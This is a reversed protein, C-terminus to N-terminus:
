LLYYKNFVGRNEYVINKVEGAPRFHPENGGSSIARHRPKVRGQSGETLDFYVHALVGM